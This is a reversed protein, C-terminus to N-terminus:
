LLAAKAVDPHQELFGWAHAQAQHAKYIMYVFAAGGFLAGVVAVTKITSTIDSATKAVTGLATEPPADVLPMGTCCYKGVQVQWDRIRAQYANAKDMEAGAGVLAPTCSNFWTGFDHSFAVWAARTADPIAACTDVVRGLQSVVQGLEHKKAAVESSATIGPLYSATEAQGVLVRPLVRNRVQRACPACVVMIGIDVTAPHSRCRECLMM